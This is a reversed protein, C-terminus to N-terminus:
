SDSRALEAEIAATLREQLSESEIQQIIENLFGRVVLRRAQKEEIGRAQLYFLQEDDFRGSASAHGAGEIQGTEIELNPVSDARAGDTLLLNRNLEYTDTGEAEARILVDGVWITHAKDGQLAGKYTARSRCNAVAHDIFLRHEFHQGSDAFYLGLLEVESGPQTFTASPTVRVVKGGMTIVVHKLHASRALKAQVASSHVADDNWDQVSVVTLFANDEVLIEVNEALTAAGKHDLVITAKSNSQAKIIIHAASAVNDIGTLSIQAETASDTEAITILLARTASEWAAASPQDEPLGAAGFNEDSSEIWQYTVGSAEPLEFQQWERLGPQDLGRLQESTTYRWQEERNSIAAFDSLKASRFRESRTQIPIEEAGLYGHSHGKSGAPLVDFETSATAM